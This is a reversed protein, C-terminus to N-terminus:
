FYGFDEHTLVPYTRAAVFEKHLARITETVDPAGTFALYNDWIPIRAADCAECGAGRPHWSGHGSILLVAAQGLKLAAPGIQARREEILHGRVERIEGRVLWSLAQSTDLELGGRAAALDASKAQWVTRKDHAERLVEDSGHLEIEAMRKAVVSRAWKDPFLIRNALRREKYAADILYGAWFAANDSPLRVQVLSGAIPLTGSITPTGTTM